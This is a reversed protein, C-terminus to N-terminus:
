LRRFYFCLLNLHFFSLNFLHIGRGNGRAGQPKRRHRWPAAAGGNNSAGCHDQPVVGSPRFSSFTVEAFPTPITGPDKLFVSPGSLQALAAAALCDKNLLFHIKSYLKFILLHLFPLLKSKSVRTLSLLVFVHWLQNPVIEHSRGFFYARSLITLYVLHEIFICCFLSQIESLLCLRTM